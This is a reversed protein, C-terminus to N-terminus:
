SGDDVGGHPNTSDMMGGRGGRLAKLIDLIMSYGSDWAINAKFEGGDKFRIVATEEKEDIRIVELDAIQRTLKLTECFKACIESKNECM